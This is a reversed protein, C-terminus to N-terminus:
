LYASLDILLEIDVSPALSRVLAAPPFRRGHRLWFRVLRRPTHAPLDPVSM